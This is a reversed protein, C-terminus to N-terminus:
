VERMLSAIFEEASTTSKYRIGHELAKNKFPLSRVTDIVLANELLPAAKELSCVPIGHLTKGAKHPNDDIFSLINYGHHRLLPAVAAGTMGAGFVLIEQNEWGSRPKSEALFDMIQQETVCPKEFFCAFVYAMHLGLSRCRVCGQWNRKVESIAKEDMSLFDGLRDVVAPERHICTLIQGEHDLVLASSQSHCPITELGPIPAFPFPRDNSIRPLVLRTIDDNHRWTEFMGKSLSIHINEQLVVAPYPCFDIGYSKCLEELQVSDDMNDIYKHFNVLVRTSSKKTYKGIEQMNELVLRVNGGRHGREYVDQTFGSMSIVLTKLAPNQLLRSWDTRVNLNSSIYATHGFSHLASLIENIQPHLLPENWIHLYFLQPGYLKAVKDFIKQCRDLSIYQLPLAANGDVKRRWNFRGTPCSPCQLICKNTIAMNVMDIQNLREKM